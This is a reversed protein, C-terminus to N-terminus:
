NPLPRHFLNVKTTKHNPNEKKLPTSTSTEQGCHTWAWIKRNRMGIMQMNTAGWKDLSPEGLCIWFILQLEWSIPALIVMQPIDKEPSCLWTDSSHFSAPLGIQMNGNFAHRLVVLVFSEVKRYAKYLNSTGAGTAGSLWSVTINKNPPHFKQVKEAANMTPLLPCDQSPTKKPKWRAVMPQGPVLPQVRGRSHFRHQMPM